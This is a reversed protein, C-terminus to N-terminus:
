ARVGPAMATTAALAAAASLFGRRDVGAAPPREKPKALDVFRHLQVRAM